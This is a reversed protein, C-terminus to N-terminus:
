NIISRGEKKEILAFLLGEERVSLPRWGSAQHVKVILKGSREDLLAEAMADFDGMMLPETGGMQFLGFRHTM